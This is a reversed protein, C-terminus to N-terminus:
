SVLSIMAANKDRLKMKLDMSCEETCFVIDQSLTYFYERCSYNKCKRYFNLEGLPRYRGNNYCTMCVVESSELQIGLVHWTQDTFEKGCKICSVDHM